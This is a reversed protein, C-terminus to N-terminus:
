VVELRELPFGFTSVGDKNAHEAGSENPCPFSTANPNKTLLIDEKILVFTKRQQAPIELYM